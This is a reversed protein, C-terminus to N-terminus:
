VSKYKGSVVFLGYVAAMTITMTIVANIIIPLSIFAFLEGGPVIITSAREWGQLLIGVLSLAISVIALGLALIFVRPWSKIKKLIAFGALLLLGHFVASVVNVAVIPLAAFM